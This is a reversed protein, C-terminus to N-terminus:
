TAAASAASLDPAVGALVVRNRGAAKAAYLAADAEAIFSEVSQGPQTVKAVVGLSVTVPTRQGGHEFVLAEIASRVREAVELAQEAATGPLVLAFEEGGFRAVLDTARGVTRRLAAAVLRLCEDGAVHGLSDNM